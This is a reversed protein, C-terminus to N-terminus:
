EGKTQNDAARDSLAAAIQARYDSGEKEARSEAAFPGRETRCVAIRTAELFSHLARKRAYLDILAMLEENTM